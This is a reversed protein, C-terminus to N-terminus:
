RRFTAPLANLKAEILDALRRHGATNPHLRDRKSNAFYKAYSDNMPLLGSEGFLDIVPCSWHKAAAKM